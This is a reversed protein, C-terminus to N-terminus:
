VLTGSQPKALDANIADPPANSYLVLQVLLTGSQPVALDANIADARADPYIHLQVVLTGSQPISLDGNIADALANNYIHLQTLLTGSQPKSLDANIADSGVGFMFGSLPRALDANMADDVFVPYPWSTYYTPAFAQAASRLGPVDIFTYATRENGPELPVPILNITRQVSAPRSKLPYSPGVWPNSAM